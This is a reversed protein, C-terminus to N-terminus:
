QSGSPRSAKRQEKRCSQRMWQKVLFSAAYKAKGMQQPRTCHLTQAGGTQHGRGRWGVGGGGMERGMRKGKLWLHEGHWGM